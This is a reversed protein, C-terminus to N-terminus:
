YTGNLFSMSINIGSNYGLYQKKLHGDVFQGMLWEAVRNERNEEFWEKPRGVHMNQEIGNDVAQQIIQDLDPSGVKTEEIQEVMLKLQNKRNVEFGGIVIENM